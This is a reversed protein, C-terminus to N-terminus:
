RLETGWEIHDIVGVHNPRKEFWIVDYLSGEFEIVYGTSSDSTPHNIGDVPETSFRWLQPGAIGARHGSDTEGSVRTRRCRVNEKFTTLASIVGGAGDDQPARIKITLSSYLGQM